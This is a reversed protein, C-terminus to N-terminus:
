YGASARNLVTLLSGDFLAYFHIHGEEEINQRLGLFQSLGISLIQAPKNPPRIRRQTAECAPALARDTPRYPFQEPLRPRHHRRRSERCNPTLCCFASGTVQHPLQCSPSLGGSAIRPSPVGAVLSASSRVKRDKLLLSSRVLPLQLALFESSM